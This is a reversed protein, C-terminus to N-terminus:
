HVAPLGFLGHSGANGGAAFFSGLLFKRHALLHTLSILLAGVILLANLMLSATLADELGITQAITPPLTYIM